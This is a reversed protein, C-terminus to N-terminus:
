RPWIKTQEVRLKELLQAVTKNIFESGNDSHFGMIRFPFQRLMNELVPELYAESIRPTSGAVQRQTVEDVANIHYVGKEGGNPQDGQHVTDLRLLGPEGQLQPKRREGISVAMPRTKTYNLLRERYRQSHRLNYVHAVSIGAMQLRADLLAQIAPRQFARRYAEPSVWFDLCVFLISTRSLFPPMPSSQCELLDTAILDPALSRALTYWQGGRQISRVFHGATETTLSYCSIVHLMSLREPLLETSAPALCASTRCAPRPTTPPLLISTLLQPHNRIKTAPLYLKKGRKIMYGLFEFGYQVHVIRTKQPHLEVGLQKLIRGAADIAARAEAASKCTVVWDDAYRTLQYGKHRM